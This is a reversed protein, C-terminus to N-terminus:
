LHRRLQRFEPTNGEVSVAVAREPALSPHPCFADDQRLGGRIHIQAALRHGTEHSIELEAGLIQHNDMVVQIHGKPAELERRAAPGPPMPPNQVDHGGQVGLLKEPDLQADPPGM